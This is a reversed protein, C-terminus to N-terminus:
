SVGVETRAARYGVGRVTTLYRPRDADDGLKERVRKVLVDITRDLVFAEGEGYVADMLQERTLVRGDAEVLAAVLKFELATLDVPRGGVAAEHRGRDLVLDGHTLVPAAPASGAHMGSRDLVRKIRVVLEAPSFPKPLYDDAGEALGAIRDATSGRASLMVIPTRDTRRVARLISLGDVEPLMLDLVVLAPAELAIAALASRGDSAEVVRFGERELYTRVLRVIKADDDVVLIPAKQEAMARDYTAGGM